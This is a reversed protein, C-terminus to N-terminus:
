LGDADILMPVPEKVLERVLEVTDDARGLGPGLAVAKLSRM